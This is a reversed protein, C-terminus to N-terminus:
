WSFGVFAAEAVRLQDLISAALSALSSPRFEEAPRPSSQAHGPGDIAVVRLGLSSAVEEGIPAYDAGSGGAGHWCLVVSGEPPGWERAAVTGQSLRLRRDGPSNDARGM